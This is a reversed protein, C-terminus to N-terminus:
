NVFVSRPAQNQRQRGLQFPAVDTLCRRRRFARRVCHNFLPRGDHSVARPQRSPFQYGSPENNSTDRRGTLRGGDGGSDGNACRRPRLLQRLLGVAARLAVRRTASPAGAPHFEVGRLKLLVNVREGEDLRLLLQFEGLLLLRVKGRLQDPQLRHPPPRRIFAPPQEGLKSTQDIRLCWAIFGDGLVQLRQAVDIAPAGLPGM